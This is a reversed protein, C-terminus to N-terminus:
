NQNQGGRRKPIRSFALIIYCKRRITPGVLDSKTGWTKPSRRSHLPSTANGGVQPGWWNQNQGGHRQPGGLICPHHLMEAWKHAGGFRIKNGMDKPIGSFAPTIYCKRGSTPGVLESKTGWTKPSGRSHLPSTANGGVQPGWWNQNQGGHRKPVGSFSPTIYCKRGSTPGVLKSKAGWTKQPDALICPHHLMEASNHAGGFRIKNGMDKPIASFAPTIYCKRGSTPRVLESKTEWTRPSGRSHLPSTANGGSQPGVLESKTAWTKTSGRSHLPSTANAGVQPGWWNQNQGGHRQPDALICPHHLMEALNHAGAIRIKNGMDKSVGSFAPTIYCKRGSTPGVLESKTGWTKPSGRSYLPSTANGGVQPGWWNQNQGGYRQRDGLIRPHHLMEAWKHAGDTRIKDGMDKPIGSFAPTIYCKRAGTPGVLESKTGWSKPSGRSHPPSKGNGGMQPGWCNQNQGGHRQPDGLICPHHLMEAWKHAGGIRIKDGMDKPVGSFARTIYCKRGSTPGVLESKAGWTKPSGRSHPPSKGNGGVQPGWWNQNQGGHRQPDGLICPLHLMEAWKHAGGIRIKDGMDKPIGSFAPTSYCKRGSTPGVLESKTEWTKPSGRSHPPSKGGGGVQPGWWIQNQEGHRQPGGLICPHHLMEAWKYAGGIRIKDGM